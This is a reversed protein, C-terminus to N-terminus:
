GRRGNKQREAAAVRKVSCAVRCALLGYIRNLVQVAIQGVSNFAKESLSMRIMTRFWTEPLLRRALLLMRADAGVSYRLRKGSDNAAKYIVKAADEPTSGGPGTKDM